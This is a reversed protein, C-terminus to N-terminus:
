STPAFSLFAMWDASRFSQVRSVFEGCKVLLSAVPLHDGCFFFFFPEKPGWRFFPFLSALPVIGRRSRAPHQSTDRLMCASAPPAAHDPASSAFNREAM